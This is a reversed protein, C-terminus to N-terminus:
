PTDDRSAARVEVSMGPSILRLKEPTEDFIIKVPVRQIVKVFNGTANEPPLLAFRAGTGRQISDIHGRLTVKPYADVRITVSQKPQLAALQTEKFNAVVYIQDPVLVFLVQGPQVYNGAEVLRRAVTGAEAVAIKTYSLNLEALALDARADGVDADATEIQTRTLDAQARVSEMRLSAAQVRARDSALAAEAEDIRQAAVARADTVAKLRGLDTAALHAQTKAVELEAASENANAEAVRALVKAEVLKSEATRLRARAIDRTAVYDRPDLEVVADGAAVRSNDDIRVASVYAAIKSTVSVTHAEVYADDTEASEGAIFFVYGACALLLGGFVIGVIKKNM